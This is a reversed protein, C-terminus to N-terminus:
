PSAHYIGISWFGSTNIGDVSIIWDQGTWVPDFNHMGMANWGSPGNTLIPSEPIEHEAYSTPTLTDVQFIRVESGYTVDDRQVTRIIKNTDYVFSRGGLRARSGDGSVIPSLPHQVWGSTLNSSYYLYCESNSTTSTFMWWYGNHFFISTDVFPRGSVLTAVYTWDYPFNQAEYLRISNAQYTEPIMYYHGNAKFVYPYSLHFTETLVLRDYTWHYGDTSHAVGIHGKGGIDYVEFFLYWQNNEYFLFPDATFQSQIDTVMGATMVPNSVVSNPQLNTFPSTTVNHWDPITTVPGSTPVPTPTYVPTPTATPATTPTASPLPQPGNAGWSQFNDYYYTGRTSGISGFAGLRVYELRRTDNDIGTMNSRLAGDVRLSFIGNNAGPASSARWELEILHPADSIDVFDGLTPAGSDDFNAIFLIYQNNINGLVLSFIEMGSGNFGWFIHHANGNAIIVSNPDFNFSVRYNNENNPKDDRVGIVNSDNLLAQMGYNGSLAAATSVSLDGGDTVASTWASINGSEFNDSFV